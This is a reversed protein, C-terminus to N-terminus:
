NLLELACKKWKVLFSKTQRTSEQFGVKRRTNKKLQVLSRSVKGGLDGASTWYKCHKLEAKERFKKFKGKGIETSEVKSSKLEEPNEHLLAIIPKGISVAYDYEM